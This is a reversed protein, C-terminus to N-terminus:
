AMLCATRMVREKSKWTCHDYHEITTQASSHGLIESLARYGMGRELCRMAFTHRLTHPHVGRIGLGKAMRGLREQMTRPEAAGGGARAFVFDEEAAQTKKMREKLMQILFSPVPIERVSNETKPEGVVLETARGAKGGPVRKVSCRVCLVGRSVDLDGYRLACLEGVRVGTYLCVLYEPRDEELARRELMSQEAGTLVRPPRRQVRPLRIDKWPSEELFRNKVAQALISKLLRCLGYLTSPSLGEKMQNVAEQVDERRLKALTHAGLLPRLHGDIRRRYLQYTTERIYPRELAELWYDMFDSLTGRGCIFVPPRERDQLHAAKLISLRQKALSYTGAYVSKFRPKGDPKRGVICRGEWRGDKRHYINEGRRAM